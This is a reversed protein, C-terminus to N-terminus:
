LGKSITPTFYFTNLEFATSYEEAVNTV